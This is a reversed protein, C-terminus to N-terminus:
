NFAWKVPGTKYFSHLRFDDSLEKIIRCLCSDCERLGSENIKKQIGVCYLRHDGM